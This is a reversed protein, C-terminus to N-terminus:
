YVIVTKRGRIINLNFGSTAASIKYCLLSFVFYVQRGFFSSREAYVPSICHNQESGACV